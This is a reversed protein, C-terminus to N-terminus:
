VRGGLSSQGGAGHYVTCTHLKEAVCRWLREVLPRISEVDNADTELDRASHLESATIAEYAGADIVAECRAGSCRVEYAADGLLGSVVSKLAEQAATPDGALRSLCESLLVAIVDVLEDIHEEALLRAADLLEGPRAEGLTFSAEAVGGRRVFRTVRVVPM